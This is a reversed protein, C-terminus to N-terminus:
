AKGAGEASETESTNGANKKKAMTLGITLGVGAVVCIVLLQIFYILFSNIFSVM